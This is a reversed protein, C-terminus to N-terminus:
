SYLISLSIGSWCYCGAGLAWCMVDGMKITIATRKGEGLLTFRLARYTTSHAGDHPTKKKRRKKESAYSLRVVVVFFFFFNLLFFYIYYQNFVHSNRRWPVISTLGIGAQVQVVCLKVYNLFMRDFLVHFFNGIGSICDRPSCVCSYIYLCRYSTYITRINYIINYKIHKYM